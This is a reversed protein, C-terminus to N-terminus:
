ATKYAPNCNAFTRYRRVIEIEQRKPIALIESHDTTKEIRSQM